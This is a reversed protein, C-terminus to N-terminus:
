SAILCDTIILDSSSVALMKILCKKNSGSPLTVGFPNTVGSGLTVTYTQGTQISDIYYTHEMGARINWTVRLEQSDHVNSVVQNIIAKSFGAPSWTNSHSEIQRFTYEYDRLQQYDGNSSSASKWFGSVSFVLTSVNFETLVYYANKWTWTSAVFLLHRHSTADDAQGAEVASWSKYYLDYSTTYFWEALEWINADASLETVDGGGGWSIVLNWSWLLSNGNITKINTGSVLEAQQWTNAFTKMTNLTMKGNANNYAYVLEESWTPTTLATLASIKTNAM